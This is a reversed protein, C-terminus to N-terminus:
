PRTAGTKRKAHAPPEGQPTIYCLTTVERYLIKSHAKNRDFYIISYQLVTISYQLVTISYQLVTISYQLAKLCLNPNRLRLIM